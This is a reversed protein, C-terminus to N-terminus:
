QIRQGNALIHGQENIELTSNLTDPGDGPRAFLGMMMRAGGAQDEPVLGMTVLKDLLGNGGVLQLNLIGTPRPLGDFTETDTNDFTFAGDGTLSAGAATLELAEVTLAELEAPPPGADLGEMVEPDMINALLKAQGTLAIVLTAPDRPLQGTPDFIGWILDSLVLENLNLTLDFGQPDDSAMVPILINFLLESFSLTIPLPLESGAMNVAVNAQELAYGFGGAGIQVSLMGGDSSSEYSFSEGQDEFNMQSSGAGLAIGGDTGFGAEIMAAMNEPDMETPLSTVGELSIGENSGSWTLTGGEEPDTISVDYRLADAEMRQAYSRVDGGTVQTRGTVNTMGMSMQAVDSGVSVGDVVVDALDMALTSTTYTYTLDDPDGAAVMAFGTNSVEVTAEFAAGDSDTGAVVIPMVPPIGVDVTGDGNEVFSLDGLNIVVTVDDEPLDMTLTVDGVSLTDGSMQESASVTYGTAAMYGRWDSWVDQATVDAQVATAGFTCLFIAGAGRMFGSSM